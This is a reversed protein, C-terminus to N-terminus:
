PRFTPQEGPVLAVPMRKTEKGNAFLVLTTASDGVAIFNTRGGEINFRPGDRRGSANFESLTLPQGEANHMEFQDASDPASLELQFHCRREITLVLEDSGGQVHSRLSQESRGLETPIADDHDIRFYAFEKPVLQFEFRGNADTLIQQGTGHSTSVVQGQVKRQYADCSVRVTADPMPDGRRDVVRGRVTEWTEEYSMVLRVDSRGARVENASTRVLTDTDMAVLSYARDMLATLEFRGTDDTEVYPWGSNLGAQTSEVTLFDPFRRGPVRRGGLFTGDAIWVRIGALGEGEDSVVRGAIALPEDELRLVVHNPWIPNEEEDFEEALLETPRHGPKMALIRPAQVVGLFPAVTQQISDPDDLFFAFRGQDDTTTTDVGLGVTAGEVRAGRMDLVVGSVTNSSAMPRALVFVLHSTDSAPAAREDVSYGKKAAAVTGALFVPAEPMEFQGEADTHVLFEVERSFDLIFPISAQMQSSPTLRVTADAIAVGVDDRVEGRIAIRPAVVLVTEKDTGEQSEVGEMVTTYRESRIWMSRSGPSPIEFTGDPGSLGLASLQSVDEKSSMPKAIIEVDRIPRGQLDVVRGRVMRSEAEPVPVAPKADNSEANLEKRETAGETAIAASGVNDRPAANAVSEVPSSLSPELGGEPADAFQRSAFYGAGILVAALVIAAKSNVALAGIPLFLSAPPSSQGAPAKLVPTLAVAWSSANGKHDEELRQRLRSLGRALRTKVTSLPLGERHAIATPTLEEFFRLLIATRYPEDLQMVFHTLEQQVSVRALMEATSDETSNEKTAVFRERDQRRSKSRHEQRVVNKMVTRLWGRVSRDERPPNRLAQLWTEQALDDALEADRVLSFALRRLWGAESLLAASHINEPPLPPM